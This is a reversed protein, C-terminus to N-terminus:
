EKASDHPAHEEAADLARAVEDRLWEPLNRPMKELSAVSAPGGIEIISKLAEFRYGEDLRQNRVAKELDPIAAPNGFAGLASVAARWDGESKTKTLIKKLVDFDETRGVAGIAMIAESRIQDSEDKTAADVIAECVEKQMPYELRAFPPPEDPKENKGPKRKDGDTSDAEKEEEDRNPNLFVQRGNEDVSMPAFEVEGGKARRCEEIAYTGYDRLVRLAKYRNDDLRATRLSRGWDEITKGSDPVSAPRGTEDFLVTSPDTTTAEAQSLLVCFVMAAFNM